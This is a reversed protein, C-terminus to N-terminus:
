HNTINPFLHLSKKKQENKKENTYICLVFISFHSSDHNDNFLHFSYFSSSSFSISIKTRYAAYLANFLFLLLYSVIPM